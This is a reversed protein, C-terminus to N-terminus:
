GSRRALRLAARIIALVLRREDVPLAAILRALEDLVRPLPEQVSARARKGRDSVHVDLDLGLGDEVVARLTSLPVDRTGREIESLYKGGIGARRGVEVQTLGAAVRRTRILHGLQDLLDQISPM